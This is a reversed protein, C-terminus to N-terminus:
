ESGREELVEVGGEEEVGRELMAPVGGREADLKNFVEFFGLQQQLTVSPRSESNARTLVLACSFVSINV